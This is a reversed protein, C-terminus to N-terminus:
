DETVVYGAPVWAAPPELAAPQPMGRLFGQAFQVGSSRAVELQTTREVGELVVHADIAEALGQVAKLIARERPTPYLGILSRDVKILDVPLDRLNALNAFGKGFDDIAVRAGIARLARVQEAARSTADLHQSEVVEFVFNEASTGHRDLSEAFIELLPTRQLQRPSINIGLRFYDLHTRHREWAAAIAVARDIVWEGVDAMVDSADAAALFDGPALLGRLPHRWRLLMEAGATRGSHVDMVPQGFLELQQERVGALLEGATVLSGLVATKMTPEFIVLGGGRNAKAEYMAADADRLLEDPDRPQPEVVIVAGASASIRMTTGHTDIPRELARLLRGYLRRLDASTHVGPWIVVFEDGGLRGVADSGRVLLRLRTGIEGLVADGVPHGFTDNIQKLGDIDLFVLSFGQGGRALSDLGAEIAQRITSRTGIGTLVDTAPASEAMATLVRPRRIVLMLDNGVWSVAYEVTMSDADEPLDARSRVGRGTNVVGACATLLEESLPTPLVERVALGHLQEPDTFRRILANSAPLAQLFALASPTASTITFPHEGALILTPDFGSFAAARVVESTPIDAAPSSDNV